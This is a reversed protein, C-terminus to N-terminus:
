WAGSVACLTVIEAEKDKRSCGFNVDGDRVARLIVRLDEALAM